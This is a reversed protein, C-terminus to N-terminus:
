TAADEEALQLIFEFHEATLPMVQLTWAACKAASSRDSAFPPLCCRM